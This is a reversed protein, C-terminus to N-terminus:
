LALLTHPMIASQPQETQNCSGPQDPTTLNRIHPGCRAAMGCALKIMDVGTWRFDWVGGRYLENTRTSIAADENDTTYYVPKGNLVDVMEVIKGDPLIQRVLVNNEAAYKKVKQMRVEWDKQFRASAEELAPVNTTQQGSLRSTLVVCFLIFVPIAIKAYAFNSNM